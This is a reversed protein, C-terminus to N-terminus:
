FHTIRVLPCRIYARHNRFLRGTTGFLQDVFCQGLPGNKQTPVMALHSAIRRGHKLMHPMATRNPLLFDERRHNDQLRKVMQLVSNSQGVCCLVAQM